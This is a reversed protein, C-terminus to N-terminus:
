EPLILKISMELVTLLLRLYPVAISPQIQTHSTLGSWLSLLDVLAPSLDGSQFSDCANIIDDLTNFINISLSEM